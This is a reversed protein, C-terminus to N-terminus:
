QLLMLPFLNCLCLQPPVQMRYDEQVDQLPPSSFLGHNHLFLKQNTTTQVKIQLIQFPNSQSATRILSVIANQLTFDSGQLTRRLPLLITASYSSVFFYFRTVIM